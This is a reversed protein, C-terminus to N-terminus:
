SAWWGPGKSRSAFTLTRSALQRSLLPQDIGGKPLGSGIAQQRSGSRALRKSTISRTLSSKRCGFGANRCSAPGARTALLTTFCGQLTSGVQGFTAHTDEVTWELQWWLVVSGRADSWAGDPLAVAFPQGQGAVHRGSDRLGPAPEADGQFVIEAADSGDFSLRSSPATGSSETIEAANAATVSLLAIILTTKTHM